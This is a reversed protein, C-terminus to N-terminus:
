PEDADKKTHFKIFKGYIRNAGVTCFTCYVYDTDSTLGGKGTEFTNDKDMTEIPLEEGQAGETNLWLIFGMEDSKLAFSDSVKGHMLVSSSTIETPELTLVNRQDRVKLDPMVEIDMCSFALFAALCLSIIRPIRM